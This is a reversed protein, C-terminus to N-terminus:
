SPEQPFPESFTADCADCELVLEREPEGNPRPLVALEVLAGACRPCVRTGPEVRVVREGPPSDPDFDKFMREIEAAVGAREEAPVSGLVKELGVLKWKKKVM